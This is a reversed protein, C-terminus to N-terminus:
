QRAALNLKRPQHLTIAIPSVVLVVVFVDGAQARDGLGKRRQQARLPSRSSFAGRREARRGRFGRRTPREVKRRCKLNGPSKSRASLIVGVRAQQGQPARRRQQGLQPPASAAAVVVAGRVEEEDAGGGAQEGGRRGVRAWDQEKSRV